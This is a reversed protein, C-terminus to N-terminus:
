LANIYVYVLQMGFELVGLELLLSVEEPLLLFPLSLKANQRPQHPHAGILGGVIRWSDRLKEVDLEFYLACM